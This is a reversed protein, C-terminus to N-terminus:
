FKGTPVGRNEVCINIKAMSKVTEEIVSSTMLTAGSINEARGRSNLWSEHGLYGLTRRGNMSHFCLTAGGSKFAM